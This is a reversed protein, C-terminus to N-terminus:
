IYRETLKLMFLIKLSCGTFDLMTVSVSSFLETILLTAVATPPPLFWHVPIWSEQFPRKTWITYRLPAWRNIIRIQGPFFRPSESRTQM